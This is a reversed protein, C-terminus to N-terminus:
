IAFKESELVHRLGGLGSLYFMPMVILVLNPSLATYHLRYADRHFYNPDCRYLNSVEALVDEIAFKCLM